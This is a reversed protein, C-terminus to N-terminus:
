STEVNCDDHRKSLGIWIRLGNLSNLLYFVYKVVYIASYQDSTQRLSVSWMVVSAINVLIWFVWQEMYATSLLYQGLINCVMSVADMLVAVKLFQGAAEKDVSALIFYMVVTGILFLSSFLIWQKGNLRRAQVQKHAEAGRKKWQAFGIFQMPVFYLGNIIANGLGAGGRRWAVFCMVAYIAVDLLGFLFTLIRGNASCVVSLIGMLSGFAAILLGIRGSQSADFKLITTLVIAVSMGILIFANFWKNFREEMIM